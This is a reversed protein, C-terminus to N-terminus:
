EVNIKKPKSEQKRSLSVVLIGSKYVAEIKEPDVHDPVRFKRKFKGFRREFLILNNKETKEESKKEGSITLLNDNFDINIENKKLGPLEASIVFRDQEEYVDVAPLVGYKRYEEANTLTGFRNVFISEIGHKPEFIRFGLTM